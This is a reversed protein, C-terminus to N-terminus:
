SFQLPTDRSKYINQMKKLYSIITGHKMITPYTHCIKPNSAKIAEGCGPVAKSLGMRFLTLGKKVSATIM